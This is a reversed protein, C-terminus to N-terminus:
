HIHQACNCAIKGFLNISDSDVTLPGSKRQLVIHQLTGGTVPLTMTFNSASVAAVSCLQLPKTRINERLMEFTVPSTTTAM